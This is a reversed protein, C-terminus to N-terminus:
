SAVEASLVPESSIVKEIPLLTGVHESGEGRDLVFGDLLRGAFRVRVRCGAVVREDLDAPVLYDFPRDLHALSVDVAIRAVPLAPAPERGRGGKTAVSSTRDSRSSM